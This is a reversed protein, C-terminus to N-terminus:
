FPFDDDITRQEILVAFKDVIVLSRREYNLKEILGPTEDIRYIPSLGKSTGM